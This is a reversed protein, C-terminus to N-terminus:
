SAAGGDGIDDSMCYGEGFAWLVMWGDDVRRVARHEPKSERPSEECCGADAMELLSRMSRGRVACKRYKSKM